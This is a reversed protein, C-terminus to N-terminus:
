GTPSLVLFPSELDLAEWSYQTHFRFIIRHLHHQHLHHIINTQQIPIVIRHSAINSTTSTTDPPRRATSAVASPWVLFHRARRQAERRDSDKQSRESDALMQTPTSLVRICIDGCPGGCWCAPRRLGCCRGEEPGYKHIVVEMM